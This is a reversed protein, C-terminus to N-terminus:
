WSNKAISTLKDYNSDFTATKIKLLV